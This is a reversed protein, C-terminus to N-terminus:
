LFNNGLPCETSNIEILFNYINNSDIYHPYSYNFIGSDFDNILDSGINLLLTSNPKFNLKIEDFVFSKSSYDSLIQGFIQKKNLSQDTINAYNYMDNTALSLTAKGDLALDISNNYFDKLYVIIQNSFVSSPLYNSLEYDIEENHAFFLTIPPTAYDNGYNALNNLFINGEVNPISYVSFIGGGANLAIGFSFNNNELKLDLKLNQSFFYIAAGYNASNRFFSNRIFSVNSDYTYIAGGNQGKNNFFISSNLFFYTKENYIAGGNNYTFNEFKSNSVNLFVNKESIIALFESNIEGILNIENITVSSKTAYMFNQNFNDGTVNNMFLDSNSIILLSKVHDSSEIFGFKINELNLNSSSISFIEYEYSLVNSITM